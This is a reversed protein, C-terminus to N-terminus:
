VVVKQAAPEGLPLNSCVLARAAVSGRPKDGHRGCQYPSDQERVKGCTVKAIMIARRIGKRLVGLVLKEVHM